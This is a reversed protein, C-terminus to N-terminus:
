LQVVLKRATRQRGAPTKDEVVLEMRVAAM